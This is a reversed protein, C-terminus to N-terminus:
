ARGRPASFWGDAELRSWLAAVIRGGEAAVEAEDAVTLAGNYVQLRGDTMVHRVMLGNCYLLNNLPEPPLAGGGALLGSVDISVLDARAGVAIRGLDKRGLADAPIRTAGEIADWMTPERVQRTKDGRLLWYRAQGVIVALKLNEVYDNSHTDIGINTPVGAALAEPYPMSQAGAGGASPCHAYVSGHRRLIEGESAWDIATMHAGFMPGDLFGLSELWAAPAMNWLAKVREAEQRSQSLHIHLGTGLVDCAQKLARMTVQTHTDTAHATMMPRIRGGAVNMHRRGFELAREIERLTEPESAFLVADDKRMWIDFLRTTNPIMPGPYGRVGWAKAVRVYSEAQRLTLSMEVQTTCGSRLLEALNYATLADQDADSLQEVLQLPTRYSRGTEILGRTPTGSCVHTHGSIFGPAVLHRRADLVPLRLKVSGEVIDDIVGDRVVLSVDRVLQLKGDRELLAWGAAVIMDGEPMRARTRAAAAGPAAAALAAPAAAVARLMGRRGLAQTGPACFFCSGAADGSHQNTM